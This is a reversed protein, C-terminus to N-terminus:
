HQVVLKKTVAAGPSLRDTARLLYVGDALNETDFIDVQRTQKTAILQGLANLLDFEYNGQAGMEVYVYKDAPNPQLRLPQNNTTQPKISTITDCGSGVLPGLKYNILNPLNVSNITLTPQGGYVFGASDGKLDPNNIVHLAKLGGGWTCGYLKGNPALQLMDIFYQDTSDANYIVSSDQNNGSWLDFQNLLVREDAYLFRGNPSFELAASGEIPDNIPETSANNYVTQVNSFEGSCRDFDMLIIPGVYFGTAYRSGDQTFKSYALDDSDAVGPGIDQIYPGMISDPTILFKYYRGTDSAGMVLWYDRGNAHKCATIGGEWLLVDKLIPINKAIVAGQGGNAQRNIISYYITGPRTDQLTDNSFHFLYYIDTDGPKPIFIAAQQINLGDNALATTYPCPSLGQGNTLTDNVGCISIGNTYYLLNGNADCISANTFTFYELTPISYVKVTDATRFDVVSEDYGLAWQADYLQGYGVAWGLLAFFTLIRKMSPFTPLNHSLEEDRQRDADGKEMPFLAACQLRYLLSFWM